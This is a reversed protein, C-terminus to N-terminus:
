RSPPAYRLSGPPFCHRSGLKSTPTHAYQNTSVRVLLVCDNVIDITTDDPHSGNSAAPLSFCSFKFVLTYVSASLFIAGSVPAYMLSTPKGYLLRQQDPVLGYLSIQIFRVELLRKPASIIGTQPQHLLNKVWQIHEPARRAYPILPPLHNIIRKAPLPLNSPFYNSNFTTPPNAILKSINVSM